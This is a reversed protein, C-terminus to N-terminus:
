HDRYILGESTTFYVGSTGLACSRLLYAFLYDRGYILLSISLPISSIVDGIRVSEVPLLDPCDVIFVSICADAYTVIIWCNLYASRKFLITRPTEM